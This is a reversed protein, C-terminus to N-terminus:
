HGNQRLSSGSLPVEPAEPPQHLLSVAELQSTADLKTLISRIHTRVTTMALVLKEAIKAARMGTALLELVERERHSLRALKKNSTTTPILDHNVTCGQARLDNIMRVLEAHLAMQTTGLPDNDVSIRWALNIIPHQPPVCYPDICTITPRHDVNM